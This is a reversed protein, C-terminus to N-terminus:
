DETSKEPKKRRNFVMKAMVTSLLAYTATTCMYNDSTNNYACFM